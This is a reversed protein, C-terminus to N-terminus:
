RMELGAVISVVVAHACRWCRLRVHYLRRRLEELPRDTTVRHRLRRCRARGEVARGECFWTVVHTM